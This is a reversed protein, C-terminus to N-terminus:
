NMTCNELNFFLGIDVFGGCPECWKEYLVESQYYLCKKSIEVINPSCHNLSDLNLKDLNFRCQVKYNMSCKNKLLWRIDISFM